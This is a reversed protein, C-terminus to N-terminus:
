EPSEIFAFFEPDNASATFMTEEDFTVVAKLPPSADELWVDVVPTETFMVPDFAAFPVLTAIEM